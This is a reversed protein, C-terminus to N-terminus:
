KYVYQAMNSQAFSAESPATIACLNLLIGIIFAKLAVKKHNKKRIIADAYYYRGYSTIYLKDKKETTKTKKLM